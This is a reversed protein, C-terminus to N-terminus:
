GKKSRRFIMRNRANAVAGGLGRSDHARRRGVMHASRHESCPMAPLRPLCNASRPPGPYPRAAGATTYDALPDAAPPAPAGVAPKAPLSPAGTATPAAKPAPAATSYDALPDAPSAM